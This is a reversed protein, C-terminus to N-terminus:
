DDVSCENTIWEFLNDISYKNKKLPFSDNTNKIKLVIKEDIQDLRLIQGPNFVDFLVESPDSSILYSGLNFAEVDRLTVGSANSQILNLICKSNKMKEFLEIYPTKDKYIIGEANKAKAEGLIFECNLGLSKFKKFLEVIKDGRGKENGVWFVDISRQNLPKNQILDGINFIVAPHLRIKYTEVDKINYTCVIDMSRKLMDIDFGDSVKYLSAKDTLMLIQRCPVHGKCYKVFEMGRWKIIPPNYIFFWTDNCKKDVRPIMYKFWPELPLALGYNALSKYLKYIWKLLLSKSILEDGFVYTVNHHTATKGYYFMDYEYGGLYYVFRNM